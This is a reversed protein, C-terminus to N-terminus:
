EPAYNALAKPAIECFFGSPRSPASFLPKVSKETFPQSEEPQFPFRRKRVQNISRQSAFLPSPSGGPLRSKKVSLLM